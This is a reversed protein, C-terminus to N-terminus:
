IQLGKSKKRLQYQSYHIHIIPSVLLNMKPLLGECFLVAVYDTVLKAPLIFPKAPM